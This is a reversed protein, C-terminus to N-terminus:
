VGACAGLRNYRSERLNKSFAVFLIPEKPIGPVGVIDQSGSTPVSQDHIKQREM